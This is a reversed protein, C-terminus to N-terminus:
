NPIAMTNGRPGIFTRYNHKALIEEAIDAIRRGDRFYWGALRVRPRLESLTKEAGLLAEVEAGNVTLSLMTVRDLDFRDVLSDITATEVSQRRKGDLVLDAVLSNDQAYGSELDMEGVQNWVAAHLPTVNGAGNANLNRTLVAHCDASAELAIIRGAPLDPALRVEGFGLFAGCDIIIDDKQVTFKKLLIERDKEEPMDLISDKQQGHFGTMQEVPMAFPKLDPRLHPFAYRTLYDRMLRFYERKLSGPLDPRLNDFLEGDKDGTWLGRLRVGNKASFLGPM